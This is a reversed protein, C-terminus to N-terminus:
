SGSEAVYKERLAQYLPDSRNPPERLSASGIMEDVLTGGAEEAERSSERLCSEVLGSLTTKRKRALRKARAHVGPDLTITVRKKM